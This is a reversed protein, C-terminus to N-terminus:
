TRRNLLVDSFWLLMETATNQPLRNLSSVAAMTDKEIHKRASELVGYKEYMATVESILGGSQKDHQRTLITGLLTRDKGRSRQFAQILLLTKKGELIDGGIVKGFDKPDATVDLLDDQVQFARGLFHGFARLYRIQAQTGGGILAGMETSMSILRATKKEIMTFYKSISLMSEREFQLDLAQGECVELLGETFLGTIRHTHPTKTRLLSVYAQGLLVDGVLLATNVNWQKHVTPRGRRTAANDMIDDHVLTFNHMTEVAAGADMAYRINGGVAECSLLLLTSRVRKGKALLVHRCGDRLGKAKWTRNMSTVRRDIASQLHAYRKQFLRDSM